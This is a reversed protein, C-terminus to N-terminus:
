RAPVPTSSNVSGGNTAEFLLCGDRSKYNMSNAVVTLLRGIFGPLLAACTTGRQTSTSLTRLGRGTPFHVYWGSTHDGYNMCGESHDGWNLCGEANKGAVMCGSAGDGFTCCGEETKRKHDPNNVGSTPQQSQSPASSASIPSQQQMQSPEDRQLRDGSHASSSRSSPLEYPPPPDMRPFSSSQAQSRNPPSTPTRLKGM